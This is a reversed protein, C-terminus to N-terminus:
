GEHNSVPARHYESIVRLLHRFFRDRVRAIHRAERDDIAVQDLNQYRLPDVQLVFTNPHRQWFWEACGFQIYQRDIAVIHALADRLRRGQRCSQICLAVYAIRYDIPGNLPNDPPPVLNHPDRQGAHVFHGFCCQLTYCVGLGGFARMLPQLPTDIRSLDLANLAQRRRQRYTPDNM